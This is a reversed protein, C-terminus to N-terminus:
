LPKGKNEKGKTWSEERSLLWIHLFDGPKTFFGPSIKTTSAPSSGVVTHALYFWAKEYVQMPSHRLACSTM